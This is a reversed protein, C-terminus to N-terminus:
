VNVQTHSTTVTLSGDENWKVTQEHIEGEYFSGTISAKATFKVINEIHEKTFTHIENITRAM